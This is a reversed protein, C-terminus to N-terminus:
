HLMLSIHTRESPFRLMEGTARSSFVIRTLVEITVDFDLSGRYGDDIRCSGGGVIFIHNNDDILPDSVRVASKWAPNAAALVGLCMLPNVLRGMGRPYLHRGTGDTAPALVTFQRDPFSERLARLAATRADEDIGLLENVQVFRDRDVAWAMGAVPVGERGVAVFKGGKRFSLDDMINLFDRHSHIVGGPRALEYREFSDFVEPAYLDDVPHYKEVVPFPHFSTFCQRDALYVTSFGFRDFYSYLWDHAPILACMMSGRERSIEIAQCVLSTMYGKGRSRRATSAGCLYSLPVRQGAMTMDFRVMQLSSEIRGDDNTVTMVDEDHYVRSFYMDAYEPSDGFCEIWLRRINDKKSMNYYCGTVVLTRQHPCLVYGAPFRGDWLPPQM